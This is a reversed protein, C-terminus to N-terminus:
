IIRLLWLIFLILAVLLLLNILPGLGFGGALFGVLWLILVIVIVLWLLSRVDNGEDVITARKLANNIQEKNKVYVKSTNIKTETLSTHFPTATSNSKHTSQQSAKQITSTNDSNYNKTETKADDINKTAVVVTPEVYTKEPTNRKITKKNSYDVYYGNKYHRKSISLSQSCSSLLIATCIFLSIGTFLKKMIKLKSPKQNQSFM